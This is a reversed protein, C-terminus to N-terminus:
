QDIMEAWLAPLEEPTITWAAPKNARGKTLIALANEITPDLDSDRLVVAIFFVDGKRADEYTTITDITITEIQPSIM